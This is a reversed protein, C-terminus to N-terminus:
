RVVYLVGSTVRSIVGNYASTLEKSIGYEMYDIKIDSNFPYSCRIQSISKYLSLTKTPELQFSVTVTDQTTVQNSSTKSITNQSMWSGMYSVGLSYEHKSAVLDVNNKVGLTVGFSNSTTEQATITHSDIRVNSVQFAKTFTITTNGRNRYSEILSDNSTSRVCSENGDTIDGSVGIVILIPSNKLVWERGYGDNLKTLTVINSRSVCLLQGDDSISMSLCDPSYFWQEEPSGYKVRIISTFATHHFNIKFDSDGNVYNLEKTVGNILMPYSTVRGTLGVVCPLLESGIYCIKLEYFLNPSVLKVYQDDNESNVLATIRGCNVKVILTLVILCISKHM